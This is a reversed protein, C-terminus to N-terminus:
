VKLEFLFLVYKAAVNWHVYPFGTSLAKSLATWKTRQIKIRVVYGM